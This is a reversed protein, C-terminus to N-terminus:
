PLAPQPGRKREASRLLGKSSYIRSEEKTPSHAQAGLLVILPLLFHGHLAASLCQLQRKIATTINHSFLSPGPEHQTAWSHKCKRWFSFFFFLITGQVVLTKCTLVADECVQTM